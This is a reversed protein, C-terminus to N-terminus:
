GNEGRAREAIMARGIRYAVEAAGQIAADSAASSIPLSALAQGAFWDLLTMGGPADPPTTYLPHVECGCNSQSARADAEIHTVRVTGRSYRLLWAVPERRPECVHTEATM